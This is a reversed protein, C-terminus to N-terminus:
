LDDRLVMIFSEISYVVKAYLSDQYFSGLIQTHDVPEFDPGYNQADIYANEINDVIENIGSYDEGNPFLYDLDPPRYGIIHLAEAYKKKLALIMSAYNGNGKVRHLETKDHLMRQISIEAQQMEKRTMFMNVKEGTTSSPLELYDIKVNEEDDDTVAVPRGDIIYRGASSSEDDYKAKRVSYKSRDRQSLFAKLVSKNDTWGYFITRDEKNLRDKRSYERFVLYRKKGM